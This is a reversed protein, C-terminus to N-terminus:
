RRKSDVKSIQMRGDLTRLIQSNMTLQTSHASLIKDTLSGNKM